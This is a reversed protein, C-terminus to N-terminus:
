GVMIQLNSLISNRSDDHNPNGELESMILSNEPLIIPDISRDSGFELDMVLSDNNIMASIFHRCSLGNTRYYASFVFASIM